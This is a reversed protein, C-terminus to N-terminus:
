RMDEREFQMPMLLGEIETGPVTFRVAKNQPSDKDPEVFLVGYKLLVQVYEGALHFSGCNIPDIIDGCGRCAKCTPSEHCHECEEGVMGSGVCRKCTETKPSTLTIAESRAADWTLVSLSPGNEAKIDSKVRVIMRGNTAAIFEGSRFPEIRAYRTDEKSGCDNFIPHLEPDM